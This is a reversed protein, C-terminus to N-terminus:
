RKLTAIVALEVAADLPLSTQGFATRVHGAQEQLVEVFLESAGDLVLHQKSWGPASAVHGDVRVLEKLREFGVLADRIQALVNVGCLRAAARGEAEDLDSGLKGRYRVAGNELPLQGSIFLWDGTILWPRYRGAPAAPGPLEIGLGRLKQEITM